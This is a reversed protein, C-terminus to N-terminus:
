DLELTRFSQGLSQVQAAIKLEDNLCSMTNSLMDSFTSRIEADERISKPAVENLHEELNTMWNEVEADAMFNFNRLKQIANHVANFSRSTLRGGAKVISDVNRLTEILEKRPERIISDISNNVARQISENIINHRQRLSDLTYNTEPPAIHLPLVDIRYRYELNEVTPLKPAIAAWVSPTMRERVQERASAYQDTFRDVLETLETRCSEIEDVFQLEKETPLWRLSDVTFPITFNSIKNRVCTYISDFQRKWPQGDEDVPSTKTFFKATSAAVDDTEVVQGDFSLTTQETPLTYQGLWRHCNVAVLEVCQDLSTFDVTGSTSM